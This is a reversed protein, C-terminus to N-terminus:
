VHNRRGTTPAKRLERAEGAFTIVGKKALQELEGVVAYDPFWYDRENNIDRIGISGSLGVGDAIDWGNGLYNSDEIIRLWIDFDNKDEDGRAVASLLERLAVQSGATTPTIRLNGAETERFTFDLAGENRDALVDAERLMHAATPDTFDKTAKEIFLTLAAHIKERRQDNLPIPEMLPHGMLSFAKIKEQLQRVGDDWEKGLPTTDDCIIAQLTALDDVTFQNVLKGDILEKMWRNQLDKLHDSLIYRQPTLLLQISSNPVPWSQATSLDQLAKEVERTMLVHYTFADEIGSMVMPKFCLSRDRGGHEWAQDIESLTAAADLDSPWDAEAGAKSAVLRNRHFGIDVFGHEFHEFLFGDGRQFRPYGGSPSQEDHFGLLDFERRFEQLQILTWMSATTAYRAHVTSEDPNAAHPLNDDNTDMMIKGKPPNITALRWTKIGEAYGPRRMGCGTKVGEAPGRLTEGMMM